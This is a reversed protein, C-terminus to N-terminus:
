GELSFSSTALDVSSYALRVSGNRTSSPAQVPDQTAPREREDTKPEPEDQLDKILSEHLTDLFEPLYTQFTHLEAKAEKLADFVQKVLSARQVDKAPMALADEEPSDSSPTPATTGNSPQPIAAATVPAGGATVASAAVLTVSRVVEVSVDLSSFTTMEGFREALKATESRAEEDHGQFFGRFIASLKQVLNGLDHLEQENLDGQVAVGVHQQFAYQASRAGVSVAGHDTEVRSEYNGTRCSAEVDATLVITDGDTTMVSLRGSCDNSVAMESVHTNLRRVGADALPRLNFFQQPDFHTLAQVPM